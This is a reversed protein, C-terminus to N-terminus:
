CTQGLELGRQQDQITDLYSSLAFYLNYISVQAILALNLATVLNEYELSTIIQGVQREQPEKSNLLQYLMGGLQDYHERFATEVASRVERQEPAYLRNRLFYPFIPQLRLFRPIDPDPSLLGWNAAEQLVEQWREFPLHQWFPNNDCTPQTTTSRVLILSRPLPLWASCCNSRKQHSTAIPITSAACSARQKIRAIAKRISVSM